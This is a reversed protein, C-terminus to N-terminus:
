LKYLDMKLLTSIDKIGVEVVNVYATAFPKMLDVELNSKFIGKKLNKRNYIM